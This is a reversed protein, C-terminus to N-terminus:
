KKDKLNNTYKEYFNKITFTIEKKEIIDYTKLIESIHQLISTDVQNLKLNKAYNWAINAVYKDKDNNELLKNQNAKDFINMTYIENIGFNQSFNKDRNYRLVFQRFIEKYYQEYGHWGIINSSGKLFIKKKKMHLVIESEPKLFCSKKYGLFKYFLRYKNWKRGIEINKRLFKESLEIFKGNYFNNGRHLVKNTICDNVAFTIKFVTDYNFTKIAELFYSYWNKNLVIDADLGLFWDYKEKKAIKFMELFAKYSPTLNKVVHINEKKIFQAVSDYCLKETREGISRIIVGFNM